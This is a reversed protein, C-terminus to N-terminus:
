YNEIEIDATGNKYKTDPNVVTAIKGLLRADQRSVNNKHPIGVWKDEDIYYVINGHSTNFEQNNSYYVKIVEVYKGCHEEEDIVINGIFEDKFLSKDIFTKFDYNADYYTHILNRARRNQGKSIMADSTRNILERSLEEVKKIKM